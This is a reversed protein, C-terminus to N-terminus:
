SEILISRAFICFHLVHTHMMPAMAEKDVLWSAIQQFSAVAVRHTGTVTMRCSAAQLYETGCYRMKPSFGFIACQTLASKLPGDMCTANKITCPPCTAQLRALLGGADPGPVVMQARGSGAAACQPSKSFAKMFFAERARLVDSRPHDKDACQILYAKSADLM